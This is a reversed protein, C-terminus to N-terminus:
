YLAPARVAGQAAHGGGFGRGVDEQVLGRDVSAAGQVSDKRYQLQAVRCQFIFAPKEERMFRWCEKEALTKSAAYVALKRDENYPPPAWAAEVDAAIWLSVDVHFKKNTIPATAAASLSTYVFRKVSPNRAAATLTNKGGSLVM